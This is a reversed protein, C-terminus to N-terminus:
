GLSMRLYRSTHLRNDFNELPAELFVKPVFPDLIVIQGHDIDCVHCNSDMSEELTHHNNQSKM